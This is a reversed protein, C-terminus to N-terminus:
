YNFIGGGKLHTAVRDRSKDNLATRSEFTVLKESMLIECLLTTVCLFRTCDTIIV